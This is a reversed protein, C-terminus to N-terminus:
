LMMPLAVALTHISLFSRSSQLARWKSPKVFQRQHPVLVGREGQAPREIVHEVLLAREVPEVGVVEISLSTRKITTTDPYSTTAACVTWARCSRGIMGVNAEAVAVGIDEVGRVVAPESDVVAPEM